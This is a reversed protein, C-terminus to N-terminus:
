QEESLQPDEWAAAEANALDRWYPDQLAQERAAANRFAMALPRWDEEPVGSEAVCQQAYLDIEDDTMQTLDVRHM